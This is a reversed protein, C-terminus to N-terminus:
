MMAYIVMVVMTSMSPFTNFIPVKFLFRGYDVQQILFPYAVAFVLITAPLAYRRWRGPMLYLAYVIGLMVMAAPDPARIGTAWAVFIVLAGIVLPPVGRQVLEPQREWRAQADKAGIREVLQWFGRYVRGGQRRRAM